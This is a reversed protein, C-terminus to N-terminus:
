GIISQHTSWQYQRQYQAPCISHLLDSLLIQLDTQASQWHQTPTISVTVNAGTVPVEM